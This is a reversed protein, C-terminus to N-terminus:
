KSDKTVITDEGADRRRKAATSPSARRVMAAHAVHEDPAADARRRIPASRPIGPTASTTSRTSPKATTGDVKRVGILGGGPSRLEEVAPGALAGALAYTSEDDDVGVGLVDDDARRSSAKRKRSRALAGLGVVSVYADHKADITAADEDSDLLACRVAFARLDKALPAPARGAHMARQQDAVADRLRREMADTNADDDSEDEDHHVRMAGHYARPSRATTM